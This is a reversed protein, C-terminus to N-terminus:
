KRTWYKDDVMWGEINLSKDTDLSNYNNFHDTDKMWDELELAPESEPQLAANLSGFYADDTMWSELELAEEAAPEMFFTASEANAPLESHANRADATYDAESEQVMLMAIEGFSNNTLIQKWFGQASVTFSILVFSIIVAASRLLVKQIQNNRNEQKRNQTKM